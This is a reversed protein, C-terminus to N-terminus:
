NPVLTNMKSKNCFDSIMSTYLANSQLTNKYLVCFSVLDVKVLLHWMQKNQYDQELVNQAQSFNSCCNLSAIASTRVPQPQLHLHSLSEQQLLCDLQLFSPLLKPVLQIYMLQQGVLSSATSVTIVISLEGAVIIHSRDALESLKPFTKKQEGFRQERM